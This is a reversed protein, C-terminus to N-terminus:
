DEYPTHYEVFNDAAKCLCYLFKGDMELMESMNINKFAFQLESGKYGYIGDTTARM